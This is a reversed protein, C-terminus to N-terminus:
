CSKQHLEAIDLFYRVVTNATALVQFGSPVSLVSSESVASKCDQVGVKPAPVGMKQLLSYEKANHSEWKKPLSSEPVGTKSIRTLARFFGPNNTQRDMRM